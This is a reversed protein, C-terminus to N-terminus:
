NNLNKLHIEIDPVLEGNPDSELAKKYYKKAWRKDNNSNKILWYTFNLLQNKDDIKLWKETYSLSNNIEWKDYYWKALYSYFVADNPYLNIWKESWAHIKSFNNNEIANNIMIKLDDNTAWNNKLIDDFSEYMKTTDWLMYYNYIIKRKINNKEKYWLDLAKNLFINSHIYQKLKLNTIWLLYAVNADEPVMDFYKKLYLDSNNYDWLEFYSQAIIQVIAKYDQKEELIKKSLNIAIPYIKLKMFAWILLSDKYSLDEIRFNAYNDFANKIELMEKSNIVWALEKIKEEYNKKCTHLDSLCNLANEYFFIKEENKLNTKLENKIEDVDNINWLDKYYILSLIYKTEDFNELNLLLKYYNYAKQFNKMEFYIDWIRNQLLYDDPNQKLAQDYQIAALLLQDNQFYKDWKAIIDKIKLRNKIIEIQEKNTKDSGLNWIDNKEISIEKLIEKDKPNKKNEHDKNYENYIAFAWFSLLIVIFIKIFLKM